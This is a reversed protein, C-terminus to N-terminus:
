LVRNKFVNSINKNAIALLQKRWFAEPPKASLRIIKTGARKM